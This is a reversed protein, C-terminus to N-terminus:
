YTWPWTGELETEALKSGSYFKRMAELYTTALNGRNNWTSSQTLRVGLPDAKIAKHLAKLAPSKRPTTTVIIRPQHGLSDSLRAAIRINEWARLKGKKTTKWNGLEDAWVFHAEYGRISDPSDASTVFAKSGNSWKLTRTSPEWVPRYRGSMLSLIGSEGEILIERADAMTRAVILIRAGPNSRAYRDTEEAGTRTKGAGRGGSYIWTHWWHDHPPTQDARRRYEWNDKAWETQEIAGEVAPTKKMLRLIDYIQHTTM